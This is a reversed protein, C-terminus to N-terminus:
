KDPLRCTRRLLAALRRAPRRHSAGETRGLLQGCENVVVFAPLRCVNAVTAATRAAPEDVDLVSFNIDPRSAACRAELGAFAPHLRACPACWTATFFLVHFLTRTSGVLKLNLSALDLVPAQENEASASKSKSKSKSSTSTSKSKSQSQNQNENVNEISTSTTCDNM